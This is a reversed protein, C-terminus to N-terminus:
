IVSRRKCHQDCSFCGVGTGGDAWIPAFAFLPFYDAPGYVMPLKSLARAEDPVVPHWRGAATCYSRNRLLLAPTQQLQRAEKARSGAIRTFSYFRHPVCTSPPTERIDTEATGLKANLLVHDSAALRVYRVDEDVVRKVRCQLALLSGRLCRAVASVFCALAFICQKRDPSAAKRAHFPPGSKGTVDISRLEPDDIIRGPDTKMLKSHVGKILGPRLPRLIASKQVFPMPLFPSLLLLM